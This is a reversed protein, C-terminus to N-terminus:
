WVIIVVIIIVTKNKHINKNTTSAILMLFYEFATWVAWVCLFPKPEILSGTNSGMCIHVTYVTLADFNPHKLKKLKKNQHKPSQLLSQNQPLHSNIRAGVLRQIKKTKYKHKAKNWLCFYSLYMLCLMIVILVQHM